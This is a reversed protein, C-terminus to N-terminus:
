VFCSSFLELLFVFFGQKYFFATPLVIAMAATNRNTLGETAAKCHLM